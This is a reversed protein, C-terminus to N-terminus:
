FRPSSSHGKEPLRSSTGGEPMKDYDFCWTAWRFTEPGFGEPM